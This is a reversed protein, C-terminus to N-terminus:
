KVTSPSWFTGGSLVDLLYKRGGCSALSWWCILNDVVLYAWFGTFFNPNYSVGNEPIIHTNGFIITGWFPHNLIFFGILISSNTPKGMNKFVGM